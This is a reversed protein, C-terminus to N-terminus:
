GIMDITLGPLSVQMGEIALDYYMEVFGDARRELLSFLTPQSGVVIVSSQGCCMPSAGEFATYLVAYIVRGATSVRINTLRFGLGGYSLQATM